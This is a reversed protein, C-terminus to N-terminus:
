WLGEWQDQVNQLALMQALYAETKAIGALESHLAYRLADLCNHVLAGNAFYEPMEAVTLNYVPAIGARRPMSLPRLAHADATVSSVTATSQSHRGVDNATAPLTMQAVLEDGHRSVGTQVFDRTSVHLNM